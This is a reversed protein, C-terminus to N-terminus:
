FADLEDFKEIKQSVGVGDVKDAAHGYQVTLAVLMLVSSMLYGLVMWVCLLYQLFSFGATGMFGTTDGELMFLAKALVMIYWPMFTITQLASGLLSIVFSVAFIGGWTAFGLHFAKTIAQVVILDDELMYIPVLLSLPLAVAIIVIYFVMLGVAGLAPHLSGAAFILLTALLVVLVGFVVAAVMLRASRKLCYMLEPRLETWALQLLRQERSQYLRVMSFVLSVLLMGAVVSLVVAGLSMGGFRALMASDYVGIDDVDEINGLLSMYGTFFNDYFFALVISLPLMLYVFYKLLPRWSERIFAFTDSIKDGFTRTRYLEIKPRLFDVIM